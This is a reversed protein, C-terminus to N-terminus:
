GTVGLTRSVLRAISMQADIKANQNAELTFPGFMRTAFGPTEVTLTYRGVQLFRIDYIGDKNTTTGTQVNTDANTATVKAGSVIAGSSDTVTGTINATITQARLAVGSFLLLAIATLRTAQIFRNM